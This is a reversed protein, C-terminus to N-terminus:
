IFVQIQLILSIVFDYNTKYSLNFCEYLADSYINCWVKKCYVLQHDFLFLMISTTWMGTTVRVAEGQHILQSSGEILDDGQFWEILFLLYM